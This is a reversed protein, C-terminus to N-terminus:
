CNFWGAKPRAERQKREKLRGPEVPVGLWWAGLEEYGAEARSRCQERRTTAGLPGLLVTDLACRASLGRHKQSVILSVARAVAPSHPGGTDIIM